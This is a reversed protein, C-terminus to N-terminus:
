SSIPAVPKFRKGWVRLAQEIGYTSAFILLATTLYGGAFLVLNDVRRCGMVVNLQNCGALKEFWPLSYLGLFHLGLWQLGITQIYWPTDPPYGVDIPFALRFFNVLEIGLAVVLVLRVKLKGTM